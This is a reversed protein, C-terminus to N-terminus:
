KTSLLLLQAILKEAAINAFDRKIFNENENNSFTDNSNNLLFSEEIIIKKNLKILDVDFQAKFKLEYNTIKGTSDKSLDKKEYNTNVNVNYQSRSTTNAYVKLRSKIHSNILNDGSMKIIKIKINNNISKKFTPSYGCSNFMILLILFLFFNRIFM